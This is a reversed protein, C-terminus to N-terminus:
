KKTETDVYQGLLKIMLKVINKPTFFQGQSGKLTPGIFVEFADGLVDRKADKVCYNQLEGVVYSVSKADMNM